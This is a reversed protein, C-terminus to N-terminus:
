NRGTRMKFATLDLPRDWHLARGALCDNCVALEDAGPRYALGAQELGAFVQEDTLERLPAVLRAGGVVLGEPYLLQGETLWHTDCDKYGTLLLDFPLYLAPTRQTFTRPLCVDGGGRVDTVLPLLTGNISYESVLATRGSDMVTYLNAPAWSYVTLGWDMIVSEAFAQDTTGDRFWLAPIDTRIQRALAMLLLSDKGFSLLVAPATATTLLQHLQPIIHNM